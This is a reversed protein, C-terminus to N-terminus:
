LAFNSSIKQSLILGIIHQSRNHNTSHICLDAFVRVCRRQRTVRETIAGFVLWASFSVLHTSVCVVARFLSSPGASTANSKALGGRDLRGSGASDTWSSRQELLWDRDGFVFVPIAAILFSIPLIFLWSDNIASFSSVIDYSILRENSCELWKSMSLETNM